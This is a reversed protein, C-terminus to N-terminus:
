QAFLSTPPTPFDNSGEAEGHIGHWLPPDLTCAPHCSPDISLLGPLIMWRSCLRGSDCLPSVPARGRPDALKLTFHASHQSSSPHPPPHWRQPRHPTLTASQALELWASVSTYLSIVPLACINFPSAPKDSVGGGGWTRQQWGAGEEVM